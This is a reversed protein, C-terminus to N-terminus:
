SGLLPLYLVTGDYMMRAEGDVGSANAYVYIGGLKRTSNAILKLRTDLKRLEAHSASSNLIIEVGNLGLFSSPNLPTFLEECTECGIATDVTSLVIEGIRVTTQGTVKRIVEELYYDEPESIKTWQM